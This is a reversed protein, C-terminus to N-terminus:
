AIELSSNQAYITPLAQYQRSHLPVEGAPQDLLPRMEDGEIIWM